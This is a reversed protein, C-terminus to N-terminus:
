LNALSFWQSFAVISPVGWFEPPGGSPIELSIQQKDSTRAPEEAEETQKGEGDEM